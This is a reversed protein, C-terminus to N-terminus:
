PRDPGAGDGPQSGTERSARSESTTDGPGSGAGDGGDGAEDAEPYLRQGLRVLRLVFSGFGVLLGIFAGWHATGLRRDILHGIGAAILIALM